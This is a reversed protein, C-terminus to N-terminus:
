EINRVFRVSYGSYCSKSLDGVGSIAVIYSLLSENDFALASYGYRTSNIDKTAWWSASQGIGNFEIEYNGNIYSQIYFGGAPVGSFGSRNNNGPEFGPTGEDYALSTWFSTDALSKAVKKEEYEVDSSDFPLSGDWNYGNVALYYTLQDWDNGNPIRWGDPPLINCKEPDVSHWNYIAGLKIISDQDNCFNYFCYSPSAGADSLVSIDNKIELLPSGNSFRTVRINEVTWEQEGITITNYINGDIDTLTGTGSNEIWKAYVVLSDATVESNDHFPVGGGNKETYWGGFTHGTKQPNFPLSDITTSNDMVYCQIPDAEILAGEGEFFVTYKIEPATPLNDCGIGFSLIISYIICGKLM